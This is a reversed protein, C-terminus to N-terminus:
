DIRDGVSFCSSYFVLKIKKKIKELKKKLVYYKNENYKFIEELYRM